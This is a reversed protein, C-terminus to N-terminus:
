FYLIWSGDCRLGHGQLTIRRDRSTLTQVPAIQHVLPQVFLVMEGIRYPVFEAAEAAAEGPIRCDPWIRLGSGEAPLELALTFSLPQHWDVCAFQQWFSDHMRYQLDLHVSGGSRAWAATGQLMAQRPRSAFIHFGPLALGPHFRVPGLLQELCHQLRAYLPQFAQKLIPNTQLSRSRYPEADWAGDLYSAAGLTYFDMPGRQLWHASLGLIKQVIQASEPGSLLSRRQLLV